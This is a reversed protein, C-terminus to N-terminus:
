YDLHYAIPLIINKLDWALPDVVWFFVVMIKAIDVMWSFAVM